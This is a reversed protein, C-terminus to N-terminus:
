NNHLRLANNLNYIISHEAKKYTESKYDVNHLM